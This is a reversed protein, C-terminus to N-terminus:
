CRRPRKSWRGAGGRPPRSSAQRPGLVPWEFSWFTGSFRSWVVVVDGCSGDWYFLKIQPLATQSFLFQSGRAVRSMFSPHSAQELYRRKVRFDRVYAAGGTAFAHACMDSDRQGRGPAHQCPTSLSGCRPRPTAGWCCLPLGSKLPPTRAGWRRCCIFRKTRWFRTSM